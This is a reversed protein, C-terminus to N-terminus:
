KGPGAKVRILEVEWVLPTYGPIVGNIGQSGYALDSPTLLLAKGGPKMYALGEDVGKVITYSGMVYEYPSSVTSVSDFATGDMFRGIYKFDATDHLVPSRGTGAKLEIYYLGSSKLSVLSDPVTKLFDSIQKRENKKWVDDSLCATILFVSVLVLIHWLKIRKM